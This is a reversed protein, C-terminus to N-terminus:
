LTSSVIESSQILHHFYTKILQMPVYLSFSQTTYRKSKVNINCLTYFFTAPNSTGIFISDETFDSLYKSVDQLFQSSIDKPYELIDTLKYYFVTHWWMGLSLLIWLLIKFAIKQTYKIRAMETESKPHFTHFTCTSCLEPSAVDM